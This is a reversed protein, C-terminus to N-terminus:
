RVKLLVPDKAKGALPLSDLQAPGGMASSHPM